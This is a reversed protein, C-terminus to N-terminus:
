GLSYMVYSTVCAATVITIDLYRLTTGDSSNLLPPPRFDAARLLIRAREKNLQAHFCIQEPLVDEDIGLRALKFDSQAHVLRDSPAAPVRDKHRHNM